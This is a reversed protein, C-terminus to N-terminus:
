CLTTKASLVATNFYFSILHDVFNPNKRLRFALIFMEGNLLFILIIELKFHFYKLFLSHM